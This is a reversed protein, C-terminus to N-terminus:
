RREVVPASSGAFRDSARRTRADAGRPQGCVHPTGGSGRLARFLQRSRIRWRPVFGGKEVAFDVVMRAGATEEASEVLLAKEGTLPNWAADGTRMHQPVSEVRVTLAGLLLEQYM